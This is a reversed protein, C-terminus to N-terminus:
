PCPETGSHQCQHVEVTLHHIHSLKLIADRYFRTERPKSTVLSVIGAKRSPDIQWLHLDAVRVDDIQELASRIQDELGTLAGSDLLHLSTKRCLTIGWRLVIAGGMIGILPDLFNWRWLWGLTLAIIALVSTLADALVHLYAALYNSTDSNEHSHEEKHHLLKLSALNVCFGLVAVWLAEAFNIQIPHYLRRVGEVVMSLAVGILIIASTYASLSHVKATGFTFARHRAYRRAVWYALLSLGLAGAHTAMHWGDAALALSGTLYGAILEIVMTISTLVVVARVGRESKSVVAPDPDRICTLEEVTHSHM